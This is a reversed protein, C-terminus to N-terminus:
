GGRAEARCRDFFDAVDRVDAWRKGGEVYTKIGLTNAAIKNQITHKNKDLLQGLAEADLRPGYKELLYAQIMLSM